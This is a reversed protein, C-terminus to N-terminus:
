EVVQSLNNKQIYRHKNCHSFLNTFYEHISNLYAYLESKLTYLDANGMQLFNMHVFLFSDYIQAMDAIFHFHNWSGAPAM